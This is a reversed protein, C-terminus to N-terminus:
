RRAAFSLVGLTILGMAIPGLMAIASGQDGVFLFAALMATAVGLISGVGVVESRVSTAQHGPYVGTGVEYGDGDVQEKAPLETLAASGDATEVVAAQTGDLRAIPREAVMAAAGSSTGAVETGDFSAAVSLAGTPDTRVLRPALNGTSAQLTM